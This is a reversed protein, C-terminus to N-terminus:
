RRRTEEKAANPSADLMSWFPPLADTRLIALPLSAGMIPIPPCRV